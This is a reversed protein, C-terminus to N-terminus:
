FYSSDTLLVSSDRERRTSSRTFTKLSSYACQAQQGVAGICYQLQRAFRVCYSSPRLGSHRGVLAIIPRTAAVSAPPWSRTPGPRAASAVTCVCQMAHRCNDISQVLSRALSASIATHVCVSRRLMIARHQIIPREDRGTWDSTSLCQRQPTANTFDIDCTARQPYIIAVCHVICETDSGHSYIM